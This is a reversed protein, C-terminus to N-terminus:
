GAAETATSSSTVNDNTTDFGDPRYKEVVKEPWDGEAYILWYWNETDGHKVCAVIHVSDMREDLLFGSIAAENTGYLNMADRNIGNKLLAAIDVPDTVEVSQWM